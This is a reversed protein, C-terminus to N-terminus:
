LEDQKVGQFPKSKNARLLMKSLFEKAKTLTTLLSFGLFLGLGGGVANVLDNFDVRYTTIHYTATKKHLYVCTHQTDDNTFFESWKGTKLAQKIAGEGYTMLEIRFSQRKCPPGTFCSLLSM